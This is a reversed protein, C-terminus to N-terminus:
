ARCRPMRTLLPTFIDAYLPLEPKVLLQLAECELEQAFVQADDAKPDPGYKNPKKQGPVGGIAGMFGPGIAPIFLLLVLWGTAGIDHLRRVALAITPITLGLFTLITFLSFGLFTDIIASITIALVM